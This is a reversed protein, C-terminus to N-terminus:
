LYYARNFTVKGVNTAGVTIDNTTTYANETTVTINNTDMTSYLEHLDIKKM